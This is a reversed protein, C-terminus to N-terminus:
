KVTERERARERERKGEKGKVSRERVKNRNVKCVEERERGKDEM